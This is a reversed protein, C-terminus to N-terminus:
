SLSLATRAIADIWTTFNETGPALSGHGGPLLILEVDYGAAVAAAAFERNSDAIPYVLNPDAGPENGLYGRDDEGVVLVIQLDANRGAEVALFPDFADIQGPTLATWEPFPFRGLRGWEAVFMPGAVGVVAAPALITPDVVCDTVPLPPDDGILAHIVATYGGSSFGTPMVRDPDGGYEAATSHAFALACISDESDGAPGLGNWTPVYVLVGQEAIAEAVLREGKRMDPDRTPNGGHFQVIVPWDQGETPVYIDLQKESTYALDAVVKVTPAASTPPATDTAAQDATGSGGCAAAVLMVVLLAPFPVTMRVM